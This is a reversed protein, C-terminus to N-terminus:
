PIRDERYGWSLRTKLGPWKEFTVKCGHIGKKSYMDNQKVGRWFWFYKNESPLDM